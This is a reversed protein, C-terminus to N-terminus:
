DVHTLNESRLAKNNVYFRMGNPKCERYNTETGHDLEKIHGSFEWGKKSASVALMGKKQPFYLEITTDKEDAGSASIGVSIAPHSEKKRYTDSVEQVTWLDTEPDNQLILLVDGPVDLRCFLIVEDEAQAFPVVAAFAMFAALLLKKM